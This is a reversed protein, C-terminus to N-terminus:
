GTDPEPLAKWERTEEVKGVRSLEKLRWMASKATAQNIGQTECLDLWANWRAGGADDLIQWVKLATADLRARQAPAPLAAPTAGAQLVPQPDLAWEDGPLLQRVIRYAWRAKEGDRMKDHHITIVGNQEAQSVVLTIDLGNKVVGSGRPGRTVDKGPHHVIIPTADLERALRRIAGHVATMYESANDNLGEMATTLTDLAVVTFAMDLEKALEIAAELEDPATVLQPMDPVLHFHDYFAEADLHHYLLVAEIRGMIGAQGEGCYYLVHEPQGTSVGCALLALRYLLYLTKGSNTEGYIMLSQGERLKMEADLMRARPRQRWERLDVPKFRAYADDPQAERNAANIETVIIPLAAAIEEPGRTATMYLDRAREVTIRQAYARHIQKAYLAPDLVTALDGGMYMASFDTLDHFVCAGGDGILGRFKLEEFVTIADSDEGRDTRAQIVEAVARHHFDRFKELRVGQVERITPHRIATMPDLALAILAREAYEAGPLEVPRTDAREDRAGRPAGNQRKHGNQGNQGAQGNPRPYQWGRKGRPQSAMRKRDTAM